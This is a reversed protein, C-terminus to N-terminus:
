PGSDLNQTGPPPSLPHHTPLCCDRGCEELCTYTRLLSNMMSTPSVNSRVNTTSVEPQKSLAWEIDGKRASDWRPPLPICEHIFFATKKVEKTYLPAM